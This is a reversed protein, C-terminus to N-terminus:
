KKLRATRMLKQLRRRNGLFLGLGSFGISIAATRIWNRTFANLLIASVIILCVGLIDLIWKVVPHDVFIRNTINLGGTKARDLWRKAWRHNISLLSLGAIILPIGGPGPIWGFLVGALILLFGAIDVALRKLFNESHETM